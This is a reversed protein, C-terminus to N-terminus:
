CRSSSLWPMQITPQVVAMHTLTSADYRKDVIVTCNWCPLSNSSAFAHWCPSSATHWSYMHAGPKCIQEVLEDDVADANIYVRKLVSRVNQATRFRNFLRGAIIETKLLVDLLLFIPLALRMRWDDLRAKNNMGGASRSAYCQSRASADYSCRVCAVISHARLARRHLM